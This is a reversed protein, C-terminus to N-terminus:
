ETVLALKVVLGSPGREPRGIIEYDVSTIAVGFRDTLRIRDVNALDSEAELPLRLAADMMAVESEDMEETSPDPDFGCSYSSDPTFTEVPLGLNDEYTSRELLVCTDMMASEQTGQM